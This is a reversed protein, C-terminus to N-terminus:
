LLLVSFHALDFVETHKHADDFIAPDSARCLYQADGLGSDAATKPL